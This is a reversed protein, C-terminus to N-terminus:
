WPQVPWVAVLATATGGPLERVAARATTIDMVRTTSPRFAIPSLKGANARAAALLQSCRKPEFETPLIPM